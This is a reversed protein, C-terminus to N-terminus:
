RRATPRANELVWVELPREAANDPVLYAVHSQQPSPQLGYATAPQIAQVKILEGATTLRWLENREGRRNRTCYLAGGDAWGGCRLSSLDPVTAVKAPESGNVPVRWLETQGLARLTKAFLGFSRDPSWDLLTLVDPYGARLM